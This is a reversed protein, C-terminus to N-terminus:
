LPAVFSRLLRYNTPSVIAAPLLFRKKAKHWIGNAVFYNEMNDWDEVCEVFKPPKEYSAM